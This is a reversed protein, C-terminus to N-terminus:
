EDSETWFLCFAYRRFSYVCDRQIKSYNERNERFQQFDLSNIYKKLKKM